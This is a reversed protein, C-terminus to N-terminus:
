RIMLTLLYMSGGGLIASVIILPIMCGTRQQLRTTVLRNYEQTYIARFATAQELNMGELYELMRRDLEADIEAGTGIVTADPRRAIQRVEEYDSQARTRIAEPDLRRSNSVTEGKV